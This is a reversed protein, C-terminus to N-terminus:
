HGGIKYFIFEQDGEGIIWKISGNPLLVFENAIDQPTTFPPYFDEITNGGNVCNPPGLGFLSFLELGFTEERCGYLPGFTSDMDNKRTVFGPLGNCGGNSLRTDTVAVTCRSPPVPIATTEWLRRTPGDGDVCNTISM